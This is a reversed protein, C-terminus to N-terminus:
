ASFFRGKATLITIYIEPRQDIARLHQALQYYLPQTLANLKTELNLTVIAIKGRYELLIPDTSM